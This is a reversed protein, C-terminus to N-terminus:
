IYNSERGSIYNKWLRRIDSSILSVAPVLVTGHDFGQMEYLVSDHGFNKLLAQLHLNEEYRALLELSRDGSILILPAGGRAAHTMPAYEDIVPIGDPLGREKRITYHTVTQGSIPYAKAIRDADLGFAETYEKALAMMLTLYGGASHGSVYIQDPTGGYRGINEFTWAVAQASDYLYDPCKGQPFLRYNVSVVAFGQRRFGDLLEKNGSELGGGHFWILTAFGKDTDPYYIDLVCRSKRYADTEDASVYSINQVYNYGKDQPHPQASLSASSIFSAAILVALAILRTRM